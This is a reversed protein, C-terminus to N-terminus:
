LILDIITIDSWTCRGTFAGLLIQNGRELSTVSAADNAFQYLHRPSFGEVFSNGLQAYQESKIHQIFTNIVKNNPVSSTELTQGETAKEIPSACVLLHFTSALKSLTLAPM